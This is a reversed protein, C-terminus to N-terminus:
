QVKQAERMFMTRESKLLIENRENTPPINGIDEVIDDM